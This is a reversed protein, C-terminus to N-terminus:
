RLDNMRHNPRHWCLLRCKEGHETDAWYRTHHLSHSDRLNGFPRTQRPAQSLLPTHPADELGEECGRGGGSHATFDM